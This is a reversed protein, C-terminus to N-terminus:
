NKLTLNYYITSKSYKKRNHEGFKVELGLIGRVLYHHNALDMVDDYSMNLCLRLQSLEFIEWLNMGESGKGSNKKTHIAERLLKEIKRSLTHHTYLRQLALLLDAIHSSRGKQIPIAVVSISLSNTELVQSLGVRM